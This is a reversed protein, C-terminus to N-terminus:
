YRWVVTPPTQALLALPEDLHIDLTTDGLADVNMTPM